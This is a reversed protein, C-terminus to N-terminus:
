HDETCTTFHYLEVILVTARSPVMVWNVWWVGDSHSLPQRYKSKVFFFHNWEQACHAQPHFTFMLCNNFTYFFCAQWTSSATLHLLCTILCLNCKYDSSSIPTIALFSKSLSNTIWFIKFPLTRQVLCDHQGPLVLPTTSSLLNKRPLLPGDDILHVNSGNLPLAPSVESLHPSRSSMSAM